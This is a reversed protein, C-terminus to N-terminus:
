KIDTEEVLIGNLYIRARAAGRANIPIEIKSGPAREGKFIETEGTDDLMTIRVKRTEGGQPIEYYFNRGISPANGSSQGSAIVVSVTGGGTIEQDPTPNQRLVTGAGATTSKEEAIQLSIKNSSAWSKAEDISKGSFDPVLLTGEPPRGASVVLSVISDKDAIAGPQPDQSIVDGKEVKLSFRTGEEGLALGAQRIAIEATRVPQGTLSPVFLVEGGRSLTVKIIKGEKVTMGPLPNQRIITGAPLNQAFEDGEKKIGLNMSATMTMAEGLSKGKFDPVMVDKRSHVITDMVLDVTVGGLVLVVAAIIGLRVTKPKFFPKLM